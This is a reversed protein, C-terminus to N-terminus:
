VELLALIGRCLHIFCFSLFSPSSSFFFFFFLFHLPATFLSPPAPFPYYRPFPTLGPSSFLLGPSVSPPLFSHTGLDSGDMGKVQQNLPGTNQLSPAQFGLAHLALPRIEPVLSEPM